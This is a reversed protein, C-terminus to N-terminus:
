LTSPGHLYSLREQCLLPFKIIDNSSFWFRLYIQYHVSNSDILEVNIRWNKNQDNPDLSTPGYLSKVIGCIGANKIPFGRHLRFNYVEHVTIYKGSMRFHINIM